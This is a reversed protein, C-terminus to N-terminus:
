YEIGRRARIGKTFYHKVDRMETVVDAAEILEPPANRGTIIVEVNKPRNRILEVVRQVPVLNFHCAVCLEDLIVVDYRGGAMIKEASALGRLALTRDIKSPNRKILSRTGFQRVTIRGTFKRLAKIENTEIGKAFQAIVVRLGAGAARLSLGLAATTKGKGNGTYIHVYGRGLHTM